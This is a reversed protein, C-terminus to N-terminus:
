TFISRNGPANLSPLLVLFGERIGCADCVELPFTCLRTGTRTNFFMTDGVNLHLVVLLMGLVIVTQMKLCGHMGLSFTDKQSFRRGNLPGVPWSTTPGFPSIRHCILSPESSRKVQTLITQCKGLWIATRLYCTATGYPRSCQTQTIEWCRPLHEHPLQRRCLCSAVHLLWWFPVGCLLFLGRSALRCFPSSAFPCGGCMSRAIRLQCALMM